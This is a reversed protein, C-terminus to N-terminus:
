SVTMTKELQMRTKGAGASYIFSFGGEEVTMRYLNIDAGAFVVSATGFNEGNDTLHWTRTELPVSVDLGTITKQPEAYASAALFILCFVFANKKM